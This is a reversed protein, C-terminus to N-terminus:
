VTQGPRTEIGLARVISAPILAADDIDALEVFHDAGRGSQAIAERALRTKGVGGQGIVTVLRVQPDALLAGLHALDADRGVLHTVPESM